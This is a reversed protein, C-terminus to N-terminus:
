SALEDNGEADAKRMRDLLDNCRDRWERREELSAGIRKAIRDEDYGRKKEKPKYKNM